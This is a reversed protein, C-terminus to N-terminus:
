PRGFERPASRPIGDAAQNQERQMEREHLVEYMGEQILFVDDANREIFERVPVGAIVRVKRRRQRGNVFFSEFRYEGREDRLIKRSKKSV